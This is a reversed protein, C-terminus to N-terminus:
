PARGSRYLDRDSGMSVHPTNAACAGCKKQSYNSGGSCKAKANCSPSACAGLSAAAVATIVATSLTNRLQNSLTM